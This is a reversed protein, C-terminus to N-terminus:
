TSARGLARARWARLLFVTLPLFIVLEFLATKLNRASFLISFGGHKVGRFLTVPLGYRKDDLPWAVALGWSPNLGPRPGTLWDVVVHSAVGLGVLFAWDFPQKTRSALGYGIGFALLAFAFSHSPGSHLLKPSGTLLLSVVIDLDPACGASAGV